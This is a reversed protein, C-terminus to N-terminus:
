TIQAKGDRDAEDPDSYGESPIVEKRVTDGELYFNTLNWYVAMGAGFSVMQFKKGDSYGFYFADINDEIKDSAVCEPSGNNYCYFHINRLMEDGVADSPSTLVLEKIGDDNMDCLLYYTSSTGQSGLCGDIISQYASYDVDSTSTKSDDKNSSDDEKKSESSSDDGPVGATFLSFDSDYFAYYVAALDEGTVDIVARGCDLKYKEGRGNGVYRYYKADGNIESLTFAPTGDTVTIYDYFPASYYFESSSYGEVGEMLYYYGHMLQYEDIVNDSNICKEIWGKLEEPLAFDDEIVEEMTSETTNETTSETTIETTSETSVESTEHETSTVVDEVVEETAIEAHENFKESCGNITLGCFTLLSIALLKNKNIRRM